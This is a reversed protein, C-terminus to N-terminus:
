TEGSRIEKGVRREESRLGENETLFVNGNLALSVHWWDVRIISLSSFGTGGRSHTSHVEFTCDEWALPLFRSYSLLRLLLPLGNVAEHPLPLTQSTTPHICPTKIM